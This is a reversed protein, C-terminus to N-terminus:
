AGGSALRDAVQESTLGSIRVRKRRGHAGSEIRVASKPVHLTEALFVVLAKNAAGEVPPAALRVALVGGELAGIANRRARPTVRVQLMAEDAM